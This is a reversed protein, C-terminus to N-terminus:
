SHQRPKDDTKNSGKYHTVNLALLRACEVLDEKSSQAIMQELNQYHEKFKEMHPPNTM